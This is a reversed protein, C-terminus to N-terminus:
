KIVVRVYRPQKSKTKMYVKNDWAIWVSEWGFLKNGADKLHADYWAEFYPLIPTSLDIGLKITM